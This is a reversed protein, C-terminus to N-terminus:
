YNVPITGGPPVGHPVTIIMPQRTQPNQVQLQQGAVVNPPMQVHFVPSSLVTAAVVQPQGYAQSQSSAYSEPPAQYSSPPASSNAPAAYQQGHVAQQQPQHMSPVSSFHPATPPPFPTPTLGSHSPRAATLTNYDGFQTDDIVGGSELYVEGHGGFTLDLEIEEEANYESAVVSVESGSVAPLPKLGKGQFYDVVQDPIEELTAQTLHTKNSEHRQFEVFQCIDRGKDQEQFDDLFQMASFDANGIGVIVISLPADSAAAIIRRTRQVNSVAGDTLILLIHYAQKGVQKAYQQKNRAQSAAKEIIETFETPGSMTLGTQFTSRYADLMGTIGSVETTGGLQFSHNIIGGFKAGFGFMPFQQDSDYRGIIAGVATLAKEYDNLQGGLRDIYHLTGPKRPDGNSGTFDIAVSLQLELGGTLYDVFKPRTPPPIIPSAKFPPALVEVSSRSSQKPIPPASQAGEICAFPVEIQGAAKNNKTLEFPYANDISSHTIASVSAEVSAITRHKGKKDWDKITILVPQNQDGNCIDSMSISVAKWKPNQNKKLAESRYTIQWANGTSRKSMEFFPNVKGMMSSVNNLNRGQFQFNLIGAHAAKVKEVRCFLVGGGKLRKAKICGITGLVEGIEFIASGMPKDKKSKRIEDYVGVNVRTSAAFVYDVEFTEVWHPSLDNKIAETQGLVRAEQNPDPSLLTLVAYPDSIGKFTGAVNKLKQAHLSIVVREIRNSNNNANHNNTM